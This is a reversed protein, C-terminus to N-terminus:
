EGSSTAPVSSVTAVVSSDKVMAGPIEVKLWSMPNRELDDDILLSDTEM